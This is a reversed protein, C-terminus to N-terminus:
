ELDRLDHGDVRLSRRPKRPPTASGQRHSLVRTMDNNNNDTTRVKASLCRVM